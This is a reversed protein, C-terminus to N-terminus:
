LELLFNKMLVEVKQLVKSAEIKVDEHKLLTNQIGSGYNTICSLGLVKMSAHRAAIVDPVTSMGVMDAGLTRLMKIEAPTEYTPGMVYGYVGNKITINNKKAVQQMLERYKKDYAVTMDPFRPGLEDMNKGILPNKGSLNIHDDIIILDGPKFDLNISGAANTVLLNKCGLLSSWRVAFLVKDYDYGEYAHIRGKFFLAQKKNPLEALIVEGSHGEISPSIFYPIDSFNIKAIQQYNDAIAGLGSGLIVASHPQANPFSKQFFDAATKLEQYEKNSM